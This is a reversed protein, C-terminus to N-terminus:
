GVLDSQVIASATEALSCNDSGAIRRLRDFAQSEDLEERAAVIEKAMEVTHWHALATRPDGCEDALTQFEGFRRMALDIAGRLESEGVPKVLYVFVFDPRAADTSELSNYGTLFVVPVIRERYIEHVAAIGDMVPMKIDTIVLDALNHRCLDVLSRGDGAVAVVEHKFEALMEELYLQMVPEDDAVAVRLPRDM